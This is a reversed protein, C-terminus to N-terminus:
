NGGFGVKIRTPFKYLVELYRTYEGGPVVTAPLHRIAVNADEQPDTYLNVMTVGGTETVVAGSFGKQFGRHLLAKELEVVGSIDGGCAM